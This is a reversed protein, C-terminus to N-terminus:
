FAVLERERDIHMEKFREAAGIGAFREAARFIQPFFRTSTFRCFLLSYQEYQYHFFLNAYLLFAFVTPDRQCYDRWLLVKRFVYEHLYHLTNRSEFLKTDTSGALAPLGYRGIVFKVSYIIFNWPHHSQVSLTLALRRNKSSSKTQM